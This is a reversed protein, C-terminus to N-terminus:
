QVALAMSGPEPMECSAFFRHNNDIIDLYFACYLSKVIANDDHLKFFIYNM